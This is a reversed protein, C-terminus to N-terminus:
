TTNKTEHVTETGLPAESMHEATSPCTQFLYSSGKDRALRWIVVGRWLLWVHGYDTRVEFHNM